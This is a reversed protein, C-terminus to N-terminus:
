VRFDLVQLSAGASAGGGSESGIQSPGPQTGTVKGADVQASSRILEQLGLVATWTPSRTSPCLTGFVQGGRGAQTEKSQGHELLRHGERLQVTM